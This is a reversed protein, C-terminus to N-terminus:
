IWNPTPKNSYTRIVTPIDVTTKLFIGDSTIKSQEVARKSFECLNAKTVEEYIVIYDKGCEVGRIIKTSGHIDITKYASERLLFSIKHFISTEKELFDILEEIKDFSLLDDENVMLRGSGDPFLRIFPLNLKNKNSYKQFLSLFDNIQM